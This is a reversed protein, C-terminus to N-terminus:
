RPPPCTPHLFTLLYPPLSTLLYPPLSTLRYPPLFTLSLGALLKGLGYYLQALYGLEEESPEMAAATQEHARELEVIARQYARGAGLFSNPIESLAAALNSWQM